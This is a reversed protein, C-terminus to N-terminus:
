REKSGTAGAWRRSVWVVQARAPELLDVFGRAAAEDWDGILAPGALLREEPYYHLNYAADKAASLPDPADRWDFRLAALAASEDHLRRLDATTASRLLQISTTTTPFPISHPQQKPRLCRLPQQLRHLCFPLQAAAPTRDDNVSM